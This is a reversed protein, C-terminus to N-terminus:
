FSEENQNDPPEGENWEGGGEGWLNDEQLGGGLGGSEVGWSGASEIPESSELVTEIEGRGGPRRLLCFVATGVGAVVAVVGVSIGAIVGASL